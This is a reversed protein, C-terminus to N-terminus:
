LNSVITDIVKEKQFHALYYRKGNEGMAELQQASMESLRLVNKALAQYDSAPATLGCEATEIVENGIGNLMSVIPKGFAMYSQTKSPITLAFIPEDRLSVLLADAHVFLSPMDELPYRGLFHVNGNLGMAKVKRQAAERKRGDGVVVWHIHACAKTEAAAMVVADFDQAAGVNGAFMVIFGKPMLAKHKEGNILAKDLFLDEAWNPAYVYKAKFNGKEEVSQKFAPSQLFLTDMSAYIQRVMKTLWKQMRPGLKKGTAEVSEPWLDQVWYSANVRQRHKLVLGAYAQLIPSTGWCFVRDAPLRHFLVYACSFFIFSFYNVFLALSGGKGRPIVPVRIVDAGFLWERQIGWQRYGKFITGFPYNPKGTLVTVQHGREVFGKVLDNVKFDEPYFYQTVVVIKM